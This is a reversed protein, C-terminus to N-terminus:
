ARPLAPVLSWIHQRVHTNLEQARATYADFPIHDNILQETLGVIGLRFSPVCDLLPHTLM